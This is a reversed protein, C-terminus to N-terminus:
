AIMGYGKDYAALNTKVKDASVTAALVREFGDRPLPLVGTAALAGILIINGFIPSGMALAEQTASVFWHRATMESMWKAIDEDSPYSQEGCIVGVSYIPRTNAIAQTGPNGYDMLVRLAETPELAVVMHAKGKPILPSWTSESSVRIHSMVSGGRQTAGFTEGITVLYGQGALLNGLLRSALVNGQGGVGTIILNFPDSSLKAPGM